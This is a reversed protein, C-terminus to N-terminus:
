DVAPVQQLEGLISAFAPRTSAATVLAFAPPPSPYAEKQLRPATFHKGVWRGTDVDGERQTV